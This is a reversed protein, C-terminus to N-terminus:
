RHCLHGGGLGLRRAGDRQRRRAHDNARRKTAGTVYIQVIQHSFGNALSWHDTIENMGIEFRANWASQSIKLSTADFLGSGPAFDSASPYTYDGDGTEDGGRRQVGALHGM